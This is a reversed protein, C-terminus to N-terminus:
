DAKSWHFITEYNQNSVIRIASTVEDEKPAFSNMSDIYPDIFKAKIRNEIVGIFASYSEKHKMSKLFLNKDGQIIIQIGGLKGKDFISEIKSVEAFKIGVSRHDTKKFLNFM